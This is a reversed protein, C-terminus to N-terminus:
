EALLITREGVKRRNKLGGGQEAAVGQTSCAVAHGVRGEVCEVELELM